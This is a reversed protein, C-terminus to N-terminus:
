YNDYSTEHIYQIWLTNLAISGRKQIDEKFDTFPQFETRYNKWEKRWFRVFKFQGILLQCIVNFDM